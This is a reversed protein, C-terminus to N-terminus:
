EAGGREEAPTPTDTVSVESDRGNGPTKTVSGGEAIVFCMTPRGGKETPGVPEWRGLGAKVLGNLAEEAVEAPQYQRGHHSLDRVTIRGGLRRVREILETSAQSVEDQELIAYVRKAENGFWRSLTIGAEMSKDDVVGSHALTSDGAAWRLCHVVMALRAAYGELKSWAAAEDGSLHVQEEAHANYFTIWRQKAEPSLHLTEPQRDGNEDTIPELSYLKGFLEGIIQEMAPDIETETWKKRRRPPYAFLVRALLGNEHFELRFARALPGPQIGGCISVAARSVYIAGTTKRDVIMTRGGHMNLWHAEDGGRGGKYQGFSRLWGAWEDKGVLLGRWNAVLLMALAEVTVDETINRWCAPIEPKVPSDTTGKARKRAALDIEYQILDGDYKEMAARHEKMARKQRNRVPSLALELAPSKLTGSEAVVVCWLICPETWGKKLEIRLCNGVAAAAAALLPLAIFSEDCCMAVAAQVVFSRAPEPLCDVPFPRYPEVLKPKPTPTSTVSVAKSVLVPAADALQLIADRIEDAGKDGMAGDPSIWDIIDGKAPLGPLEITKVKCDLAMLIKAVEFAYKLGGTDNDPFIWIELGALPTWDTKHASGCGHASTVAVYGLKRLEEAVVEGEGVVVCKAGDITDGLYLPLKGPPDACVFGAGNHHFPRFKKKVKGTDADVEPLDFRAVHFDHSGPYKKEWALKGGIIREQERLADELTVYIRPKKKATPWTSPVAKGDGADRLVDALPRNQIKARIDFIDGSVGCAHCKFRAIGLKDVYIGASPSKDDHWPCRIKKPNSVDAGGSRLEDALAEPSCRIQQIPDTSM